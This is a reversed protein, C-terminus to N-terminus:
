YVDRVQESEADEKPFEISPLPLQESFKLNIRPRIASEQFVLLHKIQGGIKFKDDGFTTRSFINLQVIALCSGCRELFPELIKKFDHTLEKGDFKRTNLICWNRHLDYPIQFKTHHTLCVNCLKLNCYEMFLNAGDHLKHSPSESMAEAIRTLPPCERAIFYLDGPNEPDSKSRACALTALVIVKYSNRPVAINKVYAKDQNCLRGRSFAVEKKLHRKHVPYENLRSEWDPRVLNLMGSDEAMEEVANALVPCKLTAEILNPYEM